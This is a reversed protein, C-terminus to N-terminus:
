SAEEQHGSTGLRRTICALLLRRIRGLSQSLANPTRNMRNALDQVAMQEEYRRRVLERDGPSLLELCHTLAHRHANDITEMYDIAIEALHELADPALLRAARANKERFKLVELRIISCAWAFFSTDIQFQDFKRWLVVSAEQFVDDAETTSPLLSTLYCNLRWQHSTYLNMFQDVRRAEISDPRDDNMALSIRPVM